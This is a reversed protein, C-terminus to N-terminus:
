FRPDNYVYIVRADPAEARASAKIQRAAHQQRPALRWVGLGTLRSLLIVWVHSRMSATRGCFVTLGAVLLSSAMTLAFAEM